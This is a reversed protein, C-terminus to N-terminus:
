SWESGDDERGVPVELSVGSGTVSVAYNSDCSDDIELGLFTIGNTLIWSGTMGAKDSGVDIQTVKRM